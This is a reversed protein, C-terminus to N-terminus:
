GLCLAGRDEISDGVDFLLIETVRMGSGGSEASNHFSPRPRFGSFSSLLPNASKVLGMGGSGRGRIPGFLFVSSCPSGRGPGQGRIQGCVFVSRRERAQSQSVEVGRYAGIEDWVESTRHGHM